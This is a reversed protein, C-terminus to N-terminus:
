FWISGYIGTSPVYVAKQFKIIHGYRRLTFEAVLTKIYYFGGVGGGREGVGKM